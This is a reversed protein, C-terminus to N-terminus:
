TQRKADKIMEPELSDSFGYHGNILYSREYIHSHGCMVLDVGYSELVRVANERMETMNGLNDFLNDSDHSGKTYPPSHWFAILWDRSNAELDAKLWTLM